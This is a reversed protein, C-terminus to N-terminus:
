HALFDTISGTTRTSDLHFSGVLNGDLFYKLELDHHPDTCTVKLRISDGVQAEERELDYTGSDDYFCGEIGRPSVGYCLLYTPQYASTERVQLQIHHTVPDKKCSFALLLILFIVASTKKV